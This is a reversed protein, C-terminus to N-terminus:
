SRTERRARALGVAVHHPAEPPLELVRRVQDGERAVLRLDLRHQAPGLGLPRRHDREAAAGADDAPDLRPEALPRDDRQVQAPEVPHELDVRGRQRRPDLGARGPRPQLLLQALVAEGQAVERLGELVRGEAAPDRGPGAAVERGQSVWM